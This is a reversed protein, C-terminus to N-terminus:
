FGNEEFEKIVKLALEAQNPRIFYTEFENLDIWKYAKVEESDPEIKVDKDVLILVQKQQQGRYLVPKQNVIDREILDDPWEFQNIQESTAKVELNTLSFEERLERKIAAVYDEGDHIGGGPVRWENEKWEPNQFVLYKGDTNKIYAVVGQRYPM